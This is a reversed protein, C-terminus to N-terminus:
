KRQKSAVDHQLVTVLPKEADKGSAWCIARLENGFLELAVAGMEGATADGARVQVGYADRIIEFELPEAHEGTTRDDCDYTDEVTCSTGKELSAFEGYGIIEPRSHLIEGISSELGRSLFVALADPDILEDDYEFEICLATKQRM